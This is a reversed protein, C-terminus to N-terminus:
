QNPDILRIEIVTGLQLAEAGIIVVVSNPMTKIVQTTEQPTQPTEPPEPSPGPEPPKEPPRPPTPPRSSGGGGFGSRAEVEGSWGYM